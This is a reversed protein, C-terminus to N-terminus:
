SCKKARGSLRLPKLISVLLSATQLLLRRIRDWRTDRALRPMDDTHSQAKDRRSNRSKGYRRCNSRSGEPTRSLGKPVSGCYARGRGNAWRSRSIVLQDDGQGVTRGRRVAAWATSKPALIFSVPYQHEKGLSAGSVAGASGLAKRQLRNENKDMNSRLTEFVALRVKIM